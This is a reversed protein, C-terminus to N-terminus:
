GATDSTVEGGFAEILARIWGTGGFPWATPAFEIAGGSASTRRCALKEFEGNEVADVVSGYMWPTQLSPESRRREVPTAFWRREWDRVEAETPWWFAARSRDDLFSEWYSDDRFCDAEKADALAGVLAALRDFRESDALNFTVAEVIM